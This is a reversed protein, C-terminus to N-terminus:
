YINEDKKFIFFDSFSTNPIHPDYPYKNKIEKILSWGKNIDKIFSRHLVHKSHRNDYNSSYIIVYKTSSNFLDNLHKHYVHDEVLHYIVDLSLSLEARNIEENFSSISYFSKSSDQKFKEKCIELAKKSVDFGVYNKYNSLNLQNGDGCGLELVNQINNEIVFNNIIEAKYEALRKYSGAGSHGGRNYRASWFKESNFTM